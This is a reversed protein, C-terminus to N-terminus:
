RGRVAAVRYGGLGVLALDRAALAAARRSRYYMGLGHGEPSLITFM